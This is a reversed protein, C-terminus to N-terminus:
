RSDEWVDTKKQTGRLALGEQQSKYVSLSYLDEKQVAGSEDEYEFTLKRQDKALKLFRGKKDDITRGVTRLSEALSAADPTTVVGKQRTAAM